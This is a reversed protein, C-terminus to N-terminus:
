LTLAGLALGLATEVRQVRQGMSFPQFGIELFCRREYENWGAEPGISLFTPSLLRSSTLKDKIGITHDCTTDALLLNPPAPCEKIMKPLCDQLFTNFLKFVQVVPGIADGTQQLTLATQEEIESPTLVATDLYSKPALAARIFYIREIGVSAGIQIVKKVTQPRSIGIIATIPARALPASIVELELLVQSARIEKVTALGSGQNYLVFKYISGINLERSETAPPLRGMDILAVNRVKLDKDTLLLYNM